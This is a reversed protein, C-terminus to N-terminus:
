KSEGENKNLKKLEKLFVDIADEYGGIYEQCGCFHTSRQCRIKYILEEIQKESLNVM